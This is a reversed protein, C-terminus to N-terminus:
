ARPPGYASEPSPMLSTQARLPDFRDNSLFRFLRKKCHRHSRSKTLRSAAIPRALVSLSLQRRSLIAASLLALNVARTARLDPAASQIFTLIECYWKM